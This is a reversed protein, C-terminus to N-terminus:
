EERFAGAIHKYLQLFFTNMKFIVNFMQYSFGNEPTRDEDTEATLPSLETKEKNLIM